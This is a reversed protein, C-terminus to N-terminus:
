PGLARVTDPFVGLRSGLGTVAVRDGEDIRDFFDRPMGCITDQLIPLRELDLGNRCHRRSSPWDDAVVYVHTVTERVLLAHAMPVTMFVVLTLGVGIFVTGGLAYAATQGSRDAKARGPEAADQRLLWLVAFGGPILSGLFVPWGMGAAWDASPIYNAGLIVNLILTVMGAFCLLIIALALTRM